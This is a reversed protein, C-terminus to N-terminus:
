HHLTVDGLFHGLNKVWFKRRQIPKMKERNTQGAQLDLPEIESAPRLTESM